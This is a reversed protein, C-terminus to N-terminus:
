VFAKMESTRWDRTRLLLGVETNPRLLGVVLGEEDDVLPSPAEVIEYFQGTCTQSTLRHPTELFGAGWLERAELRLESQLGASALELHGGLPQM